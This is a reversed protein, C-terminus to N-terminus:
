MHICSPIYNHMFTYVSAHMCLFCYLIAIIIVFFFAMLMMLSPPVQMDRALTEYLEKLCPWNQRGLTYAVAPFSFACHRMIEADVTQARSSNVMSLYHRLLEYPVITQGWCIYVFLVCSLLRSHVNHQITNIWKQIIIIIIILRNIYRRLVASASPFPATCLYIASREAHAM